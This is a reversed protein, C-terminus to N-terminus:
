CFVHVLIRAFSFFVEVIWAKWHDIVQVTCHAIHPLPILEYLFCCHLAFRISKKGTKTLGRKITKKKAREAIDNTHTWVIRIRDNKQQEEDTCNCCWLMWVYFYSRKNNIKQELAVHIYQTSQNRQQVEISMKKEEINFYYIFRTHGIVITCYGGHICCRCAAGDGVASSVKHNRCKPKEEENHTHRANRKAQHAIHMKITSFFFSANKVAWAVTCCLVAWIVFSM